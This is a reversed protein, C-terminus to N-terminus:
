SKVAKVLLCSFFRGTCPQLRLMCGTLPRGYRSLTADLPIRGLFPVGLDKAMKEAGGGSVHLIETCAQLGVLATRYHVEV